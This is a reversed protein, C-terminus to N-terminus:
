APFAVPVRSLMRALLQRASLYSYQAIARARAKEGCSHRFAADDRYGRIATSLAAIDGPPVVQGADGIVHAMDNVSSAVVPLGMALADFLKAPIQGEAGDSARSPIALMDAAGLWYPLRSFDFTPVIRLRERPLKSRAREVLRATYEDAEDVGALYLGVSADLGTVAALLDDVGKHKRITGVFGVWFRAAMGLEARAAERAARDPKLVDTNRVHPLLEGGYREQLWTNSVVRHPWRSIMADLRMISSLSNLKAPRLLDWLRRTRGAGAYLGVEWDDIDLLLRNENVGAARALGLSTPMPKSVVVKTGVLQRRLWRAAGPYGFVSRLERQAIPVDFGAAPGWVPARSLNLGIVRVQALPKLLDALLLARGLCNNSVNSCIVAVPADVM